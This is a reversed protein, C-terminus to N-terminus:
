KFDSFLEKLVYQLCPVEFSLWVNTIKRNFYTFRAKRKKDGEYRGPKPSVYIICLQIM